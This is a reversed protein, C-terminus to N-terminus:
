VRRGAGVVDVEAVLREIDNVLVRGADAKAAKRALLKQVRASHVEEERTYSAALASYVETTTPDPSLLTHASALFAETSRAESFTHEIDALTKEFSRGDSLSKGYQRPAERPRNVVSLRLTGVYGQTAAAEKQLADRLQPVAEQIFAADEQLASVCALTLAGSRNALSQLTCEKQVIRESIESLDESSEDAPLPSRYELNERARAKAIAIHQKYASVVEPHDLSLGMSRAVADLLKEEAEKTRAPLKGDQAKDSLRSIRLSHAQLATITDRTHEARIHKPPSPPSPSQIIPASPALTGARGVKERLAELLHLIQEFREQRIREKRELISLLLETLQKDELQGQLEEAETELEEVASVHKARAEEAREFAVRANQMRASARRMETELPDADEKLGAQTARTNERHAQIAARTSAAETRGVLHAATFDLVGAMRGKYLRNMDERTVKPAGVRELCALIRDHESSM